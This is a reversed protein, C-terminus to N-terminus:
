KEPITKIYQGFCEECCENELLFWMELEEPQMKENLFEEFIDPRLLVIQSSSLHLGKNMCFMNLSKLMDQIPFIYVQKETTVVIKYIIHVESPKEIEKKCFKCIERNGM